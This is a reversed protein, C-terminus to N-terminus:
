DEDYDEPVQVLNVAFERLLKQEDRSMGHTAKKFAYFIALGDINDRTIEM